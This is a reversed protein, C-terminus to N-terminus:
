MYIYLDIFVVEQSWKTDSVHMHNLASKSKIWWSLNGEGLGLIEM